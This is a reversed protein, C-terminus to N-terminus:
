LTGLRGVDSDREDEASEVAVTIVIAVSLLSALSAEKLDVLPLKVAFFSCDGSGPLVLALLDTFGSSKLLLLPSREPM